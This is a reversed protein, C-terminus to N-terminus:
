RNYNNKIIIKMKYIPKNHKIIIKILKIYDKM